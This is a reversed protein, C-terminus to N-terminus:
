PFVTNNEEFIEAIDNKPDLRIGLKEPSSLGRFTVTLKKAAFDTTPTGIEEITQSAVAKGNPRIVEVRINRAPAAGINHVTAELTDEGVTRLDGKDIALDPLANEEPLSEVQTVCLAVNRQPPIELPVTSFRRLTETRKWTEKGDITGDDKRDP